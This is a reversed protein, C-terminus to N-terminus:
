VAGARRAVRGVKPVTGTPFGKVDCNKNYLTEAILNYMATKTTCVSIRHDGSWLRRGAMKSDLALNQVQYALWFM